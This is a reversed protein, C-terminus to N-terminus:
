KMTLANHIMTVAEARTATKNPKFTQDPYGMIIGEEVARSVAKQAWASISTADKFSLQKGETGNKKINTLIVAMQERTITDDAGFTTANYGNIIGNAYATEIAAKAWHNKTDTFAIDMNEKPQLGFAKVVMAVFEARTITKNPKFTGDPYGSVAGSQVLQQIHSQAWHGQIDTFVPVKTKPLNVLTFTSFKDVWISLGIPNHKEDYQIEGKDVKKEGDSHEIFVGLSQLFDEQKKADTPINMGTLPLTIKTRGLFNTEIHLSTGIVSGDKAQVSLLTKTQQIENEKTVPEIKMYVDKKSLSSVTEKPLEITAKDTVVQASFGKDAMTALAEKQVNAVIEQAENGKLDPIPLTVMNMTGTAKAIAEAAKKADLTVTDSKKGDATVTRIIEVSAAQKGKENEGVLVSSTRTNTSSSTDRSGGGGGGSSGGSSAAQVTVACIATKNGDETTVTITSTGAAKPTVVGNADVTAVTPNSSSWTIKKNTANDPNVTAKLTAPSGGATLSVTTKDLTVSTVGIEDQVTVACTATKNGDETTVTITSTGAAKPTVVGNADVTAVTSNSSSWTVKKNTANDPNVTATLTATNGGATLSLTSSDLAVGSVPVSGRNATITYTKATKEEADNPAVVKVPITNAGVDLTITDSTTENGKIFVKYQPDAATAAVTISTVDNTVDVSYTDQTTSFAPQLAGESVTLDSLAAQVTVVCTAIQNGDETTVTITSTGAAKPTVVGNADVTAVTSNSSSWTVKKNTANDPSVTATLSGTAGGATLTLTNKNLAVSTVAVPPVFKMVTAKASNGVDMYAVYSTGEKDIALSPYVAVDASFGVDGVPVWSSGNFKMVTAKSRNGVDRYAVYPTGEKDIALSTEFVQGASFGVDGVPVWSLGNFKMVTAKSRNGGDQYAVYPMGYKDIALSTYKAEGASFGASDVPVWSSGNFKMVTAKASNGNDQYAVYPTGDPAIALSTYHAVAASFGVDGVKEWSLGNFKMVTAKSGNVIDQYAVYPTGKKDIALSTYDAFGASFGADGVKEWSSKNFKMVTAKYSNFEDVYAVYPTGDPAIALSTKMAVVDSVAATGVAEWSSGNLKMVTPKKSNKEDVYAVYPTGDPAIALSTDSIGGASFGATGVSDWSSSAYVLNTPLGGICTSFVFLFSLFVAYISKIKAM